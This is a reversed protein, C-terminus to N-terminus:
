CHPIGTCTDRQVGTGPLGHEVFYDGRYGSKSLRRTRLIGAARFSARREGSRVRSRMPLQCPNTVNYAELMQAPSSRITPEIAGVALDAASTEPCSETKGSSDPMVLKGILLGPNGAIIRDGPASRAGSAAKGLLLGVPEDPEGRSMATRGWRRRDSRESERSIVFASTLLDADPSRSSAITQEPAFFTSVGLKTPALRLRANEVAAFSGPGVDM